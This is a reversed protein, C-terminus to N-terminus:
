AAQQKEVPPTPGPFQRKGPAATTLLFRPFVSFAPPLPDPRLVIARIGEDGVTSRGSTKGSKGERGLVTM